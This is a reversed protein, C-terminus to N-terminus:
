YYDEVREVKPKVKFKASIIYDWKSIITEPITPMNEWWSDGCNKLKIFKDAVDKFDDFGRGNCKGELKKIIGARKANHSYGPYNDKFWQKIKNHL